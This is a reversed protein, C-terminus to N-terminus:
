MRMDHHSALVEYLNQESIIFSGLVHQVVHTTCLDCVTGLDWVLSTVFGGLQM